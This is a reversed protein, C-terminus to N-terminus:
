LKVEYNLTSQTQKAKSTKKQLIFKVCRYCSSHGKRTTDTLTRNAEM